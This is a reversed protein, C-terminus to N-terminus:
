SPTAVTRDHVGVDELVSAASPSARAISEDSKVSSSRSSRVVPTRREVCFVGFDRLQEFEQLAGLSLGGDEAGGPVQKGHCV